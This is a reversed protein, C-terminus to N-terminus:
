EYAVLVRRLVHQMLVDLPLVGIGDGRHTCHLLLEYVVLRQMYFCRGHIHPSWRTYRVVADRDCAPAAM